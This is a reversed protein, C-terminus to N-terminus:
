RLWVLLLYRFSVWIQPASYPLNTKSRDTANKLTKAGAFPSNLVLWDASPDM